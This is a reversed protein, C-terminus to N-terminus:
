NEKIKIKEKRNIAKANQYSIDLMEAARYCSFGRDYILRLLKENKEPTVRDYQRTPIARVEKEDKFKQRTLEHRARSIKYNLHDPGGRKILTDYNIKM